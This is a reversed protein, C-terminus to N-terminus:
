ELWLMWLIIAAVVVNTGTHMPRVDGFLKYNGVFGGAVFLLTALMVVARAWPLRLAAAIGAVLMLASVILLGISVRHVLSDNAIVDTWGAPKGAWLVKGGLACAVGVFLILGTAIPLSYRTLDM